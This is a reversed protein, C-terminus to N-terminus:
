KTKNKNKEKMRRQLEEAVKKPDYISIGTVKEGDSDTNILIEYGDKSQFIFTKSKIDRNNSGLFPQGLKDIIDSLKCGIKIGNLDLDNSFNDASVKILTGDAGITGQIRKGDKSIIVDCSTSNGIDKGNSAAVVDFGADKLDKISTELPLEKGSISMKGVTWSETSDSVVETDYYAETDDIVDFSKVKGTNTKQEKNFSCGSVALALCSVLVYEKWSKLM